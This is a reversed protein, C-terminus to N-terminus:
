GRLKRARWQRVRQNFTGILRHLPPSEPDKMALFRQLSLFDNEQRHANSRQGLLGRFLGIKAIWAADNGRTNGLAKVCHELAQPRREKFIACGLGFYESYVQVSVNSAPRHITAFSKDDAHEFFWALEAFHHSPLEGRGLLDQSSDLFIGHALGIQAILASPHKSEELKAFHWRIGLHSQRYHYRCGEILYKHYTYEPTYSPDHEGLVLVKSLPTSLGRRALAAKWGRKRMQQYHDTDPAISDPMGVQRFCETRYLKVGSVMGMLPDRLMGIVEGVRPRMRHRLQELCDADLIMDSDVQVFFPTAVRAAGANIAKHWPRVDRVIVVEAPRLTQRKIAELAREMSPEGITLLVASIDAYDRSM